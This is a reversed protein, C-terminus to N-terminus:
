IWTVSVCVIKYFLLFTVVSHGRQKYHYKRIAFFLLTSIVFIKFLLIIVRKV